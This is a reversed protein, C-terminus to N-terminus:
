QLMADKEYSIAAELDELAVPASFVVVGAEEIIVEIQDLKIALHAAVEEQLTTIDVGELAFRASSM